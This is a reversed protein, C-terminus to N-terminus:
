RKYKPCLLEDEVSKHSVYTCSLRRIIVMEFSKKRFGSFRNQEYPQENHEVGTGGARFVPMGLVLSPNVTTRYYQM